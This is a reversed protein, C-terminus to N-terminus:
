REAGTIEAHTRMSRQKGKQGGTTTIGTNRGRMDYQGEGFESGNLKGEDIGGYRPGHVASLSQATNQRRPKVNDARTFEITSPGGRDSLARHASWDTRGSMNPRAKPARKKRM